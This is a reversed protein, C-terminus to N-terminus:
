PQERPVGGRPYQGRAILEAETPPRVPAAPATQEIRIPIELIGAAPAPAAAPAPIIAQFDVTGRESNVSARVTLGKAKAAKRVSIAFDKPTVQFDTGQSARRAQGDLWEDWPYRTNPSAVRHIIEM